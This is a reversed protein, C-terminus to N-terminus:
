VDYYTRLVEYHVLYTTRLSVYHPFLYVADLDNKIIFSTFAVVMIGDDYTRVYTPLRVDWM